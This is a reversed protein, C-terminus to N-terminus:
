PQKIQIDIKGAYTAPLADFINSSTYIQIERTGHSICQAIIKDNFVKISKAKNMEQFHIGQCYNSDSSINLANSTMINDNISVGDSLIFRAVEKDKKIDSLVKTLTAANSTGVVRYGKLLYDVVMLNPPFSIFLLSFIFVLLATTNATSEIISISNIKVTRKSLGAVILYIGVGIALFSVIIMPLYLFKTFYYQVEGYKKFNIVSIVTCIFVLIAMLNIGARGIVDGLLDNGAARYRGYLFFLSVVLPLLLPFTYFGGPTNVSLVDVKLTLQVYIQVLGAITSVAFASAVLIRSRTDTNQILNRLVAFASLLLLPIGAITWSLMATATITGLLIIMSTQKKQFTVDAYSLLFLPTLMFVPLFSFAGDAYLPLSYILIIYLGSLASM